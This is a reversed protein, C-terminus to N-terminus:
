EGRTYNPTEKTITVYKDGFRGIDYRTQRCSVINSVAEPISLALGHSAAFDNTSGCPIYGLPVDIGESALGTIVENLTGDGGTCCVLEFDRGCRKAFECADGRKETVMVTVLYGGDTLSRIVESLCRLILKKGSVPNVILLAPRLAKIRNENETTNLVNM